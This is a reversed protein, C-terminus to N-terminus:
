AEELRERFTRGLKAGVAPRLLRHLRPRRAATADTQWRPRQRDHEAGPMGRLHLPGTSRRPRRTEGVADRRAAAAHVYFTADVTIVKGDASPTFTEVVEMQSSYEFMSHSLTWGQVNATWAVLKNGNWFGVTEGYWQPVEQVHKRGVLVRRMLNDAIGSLFQIQHPTMMVEIEGGLAAESWWRMFGEPYCFSANWQPSNNVVEHYNQQVM